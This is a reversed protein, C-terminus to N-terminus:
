NCYTLKIKPKPGLKKYFHKLGKLSRKEKRKLWVRKNVCSFVDKVYKLYLEWRNVLIVENKNTNQSYIDNLHM